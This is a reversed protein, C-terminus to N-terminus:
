ATVGSLRRRSRAIMANVLHPHVMRVPIMFLRGRWGKMRVATVVRVIGHAEDVGVAVRLDLHRDDVALLAEEGRVCRVRFRDAPHAAIGVLPGIAQRLVIAIALWRPLSRMSFLSRAWAAPDATAHAPLVGVAVDAYDPDRIEELAMSWFAPPHM